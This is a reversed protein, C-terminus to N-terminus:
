KNRGEAVRWELLEVLLMHEVEGVLRQANSRSVAVQLRVAGSRLLAAMAPYREDRRTSDFALALASFTGALAPLVVPFFRLIVAGVQLPVSGPTSAKLEPFLASVVAWTFSLAALGLTLRGMLAGVRRARAARPQAVQARREYYPAQGNADDLLRQAVYTDRRERWPRPTSCRLAWLGCSLAFRRWRPDLRAVLPQLADVLGASADLGRVLEAAFRAELWQAHAESKTLQRRRVVLWLALLAQVLMLSPFLTPAWAQDVLPLVAALAGMVTAWAQVKIARAQHDRFRGARALGVEDWAKLLQAPTSASSAHPSLKALRQMVALGRPDALRDLREDSVEGSPSILVLPLELRRAQAVLEGTGGPGRAPAGDWVAVLADCAGLLEYNADAYCDPRQGDGVAIRVTAVREARALHAEVQSWLSPDSFDRRFDEVAMPLVAHVPLDLAPALSHVLLDAGEALGGFAEIVGGVPAVQARLRLFTAELSARVAQPAELRRHGTFAIVWTPSLSTV